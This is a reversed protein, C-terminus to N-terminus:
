VWLLHGREQLAVRSLFNWRLIMGLGAFFGREERPILGEWCLTEMGGPHEDAAGQWTCVQGGWSEEQPQM